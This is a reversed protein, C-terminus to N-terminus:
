LVALAAPATPPLRANLGNRVPEETGGPGSSAPHFSVRLIRGNSTVVTAIRHAGVVVATFLTEAPTLRNANSGVDPPGPYTHCQWMRSWSSLSIIRDYRTPLYVLLICVSGRVAARDVGTTTSRM